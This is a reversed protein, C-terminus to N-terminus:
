SPRKMKQYLRSNHLNQETIFRRSVYVQFDSIFDRDKLFNLSKGAKLNNTFYFYPVIETHKLRGNDQKRCDKWLRTDKRRFM